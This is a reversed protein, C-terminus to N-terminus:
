EVFRPSPGEKWEDSYGREECRKGLYLVAPSDRLLQVTVFMDPDKVHVTAEETTRATGNATIVTTDVTSMMHVSADSDGIIESETERKPM